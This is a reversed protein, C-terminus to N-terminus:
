HHFLLMRMLILFVLIARVMTSCARIVKLLLSVPIFPLAVSFLFLRASNKFLQRRMLTVFAVLSNSIILRGFNSFCSLMYFYFIKIHWLLLGFYLFEMMICVHPQIIFIYHLWIGMNHFRGFRYSPFVKHEILYGIWRCILVGAKM